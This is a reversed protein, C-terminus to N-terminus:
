NKKEEKQDGSEALYKRPVDAIPLYELPLYELPDRHEGAAIIEFHLHPGTTLFGAGPTGPTGGSLGIQDGAKVLDGEKVGISSIHGYVTQMDGPHAIVIYSYGLGNDQAKQVIGSGAARIPTGQRLRFDIALHPIGFIEKYEPDQFYATIGRGPDAPWLLSPLNNFAVGSLGRLDAAELAQQVAEDGLQDKFEALKKNVEDLNNRLERIELEAGAQQKISEALQRRYEEEEGKTQELLTDKAARLDEIRKQEDARQEYLLILRGRETLLQRRTSEYDQQAADLERILRISTAQLVASYQRDLQASALSSDSLLLKIASLEGASDSLQLMDRYALRLFENLAQQTQALQVERAEQQAFLDGIKNQTNEILRDAEAVLQEAQLANEELVRIQEGLSAITVEIPKLKDGIDTATSNTNVFFQYKNTLDNRLLVMSSVAQQVEAFLEPDVPKEPKPEVEQAAAQGFGALGALSAALLGAISKILIRM